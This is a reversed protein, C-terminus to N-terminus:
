REGRNRQQLYDNLSLAPKHSERKPQPVSAPAQQHVARVEIRGITVNIAPPHNKSVEAKTVTPKPSSHNFTEQKAPLAKNVLSVKSSNLSVSKAIQEQHHVPVLLSNVSGTADTHEKSVQPTGPSSKIEAIPIRKNPDVKTLPLLTTQKEEESFSTKEKNHNNNQTNNHSNKQTEPAVPNPATSATINSYNVDTDNRPTVLSEERVIPTKELETTQTEVAFRPRLRPRIDAHKGINRRILGTLFDTM